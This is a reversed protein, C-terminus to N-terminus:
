PREARAERPGYPRRRRPSEGRRALGGSTALIRREVIAKEEPTMGLFEADDGHSWGAAELRKLTVEDFERRRCDVIAKEGNSLGLADCADDFVDFGAAELRAQEKKDM